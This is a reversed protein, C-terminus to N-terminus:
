FEPLDDLTPGKTRQDEVTRISEVGREDETVEVAPGAVTFGGTQLVTVVTDGSKIADVVAIVPWSAPDSEWGNTTPNARGWMVDTVRKNREDMRVAAIVYTAM